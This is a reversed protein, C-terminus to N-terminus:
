KVPINLEVPNRNLNVNTRNSNNNILLSKFVVKRNNGFLAKWKKLVALILPSTSRISAEIKRSYFETKSSILVILEKYSQMYEKKRKTHYSALYYLHLFKWNYISADIQLTITQAPVNSHFKRKAFSSFLYAAEWNRKELYYEILKFIPEGDNHDLAYTDLLTELIEASDYGLEIKCLAIETQVKHLSAKNNSDIQHAIKLYYLSKTILNLKERKSSVYESAAGYSTGIYYLWRFEHHGEEVYQILKQAYNIFKNALNGKWSAGEQRCQVYIGQILDETIAENEPVVCEHIPGEWVLKKSLNFFIQRIFSREQDICKALYIDKVLEEKDFSSIIKLEEDCDICFGWSQELEWGLEKAINVLNSLAFNRSSSFDDFPREFIYTPIGYTKGFKQIVEITNDTSGTDVAVIIDSISAVSQLMRLIVHSENKCIFNFGLRVM